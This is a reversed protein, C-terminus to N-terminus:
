CLDLRKGNQSRDESKQRQVEFGYNNVETATAWNLEVKGDGALGTFSTLEVPLAPNYNVQLDPYNTGIMQLITTFDWGTFTSQTKMEATTKGTAGFNDDGSVNGVIGDSEVDWFSNSVLANNLTNNFGVLGGINTNGSVSVMSATVTPLQDNNKKFM